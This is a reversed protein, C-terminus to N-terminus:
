GHRMGRARIAEAIAVREDWRAVADADGVNRCDCRDCDCPREGSPGAVRAAEELAEERARRAIEEATPPTAYLSYKTVRDNVVPFDEPRIVGVSVEPGNPGHYASLVAVVEAGASVAVFQGCIGYCDGTYSHEKFPWGCHVCKPEGSM